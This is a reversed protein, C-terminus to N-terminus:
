DLGLKRILEDKDEQLRYYEDDDMDDTNMDNLDQLKKWLRPHRKEAENCHDACLYLPLRNTSM